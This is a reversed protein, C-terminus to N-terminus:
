AWLAKMFMPYNDDIINVMRRVLSLCTDGCNDEDIIADATCTLDDDSDLYFKVWRYGANATNCADYGAEKNKGFKAIEFSVLHVLNEGDEDFIVLVSVSPANDTNYSIKVTENDRDTYKIGQEELTNIFAQKYINM